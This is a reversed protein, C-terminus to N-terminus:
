GQVAVACPIFHTAGYGGRNICGRTADETGGFPAVANRTNDWLVNSSGSDTTWIADTVGNWVGTGGTVSLDSPVTDRVPQHESQSVLRSSAAAALAFRARRCVFAM